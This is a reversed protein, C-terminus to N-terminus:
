TSVLGLQHSSSETSSSMVSTALAAKVEKEAMRIHESLLDIAELGKDMTASFHEAGPVFEEYRKDEELREAAPLSRYLDKANSLFDEETMTEPKENVLRNVEALYNLLRAQAPGLVRRIPGSM